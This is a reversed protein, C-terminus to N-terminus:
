EEDEKLYPKRVEPNKFTPEAARPSVLPKKLAKLLDKYQDPTLELEVEENGKDKYICIKNNKNLKYKRGKATFTM